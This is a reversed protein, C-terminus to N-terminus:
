IRDSDLEKKKFLM